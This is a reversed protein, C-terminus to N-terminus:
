LEVKKIITKIIAPKILLIVPYILDVLKNRRNKALKIIFFMLRYWLQKRIRVLKRKKLKPFVVEEEFKMLDNFYKLNVINKKSRSISDDVRYYVTVNDVFDLKVGNQLFKIWLPYDELMAYREDVFGIQILAQRNIFTTPAGSINSEYLSKLQNDFNSCLVEIDYKNPLVSNTLIGNKMIQMKSFLVSCDNSIAYDINNKICDMHLVDDAAISKIWAGTCLRWAKNCNIAVGRNETLFSLIVSHFADSHIEIWKYIIDRTRDTSFDDAFIIEIKSLDYSQNLISNLTEHITTQSNYSVVVVSIIM